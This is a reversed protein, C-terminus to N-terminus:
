QADVEFELQVRLVDDDASVSQVAISPVTVKYPITTGQLIKAVEERLDLHFASPIASLVLVELLPRYTENGQELRFDQLGLVAQDFFPRASVVVDFGESPGVCNGQVPQGARAAFHAKLYLRGNRLSTQPQDLYAYACGRPTGSVVYKGDQKFVQTKLATDIASSHLAITAAGADVCAVGIAGSAMAALIVKVRSIM